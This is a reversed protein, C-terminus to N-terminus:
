IQGVEERGEPILLPTSELVVLGLPGRAGEECPSCLSALQLLCGRDRFVLM